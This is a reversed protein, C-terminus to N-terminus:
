PGAHPSLIRKKRMKREMIIIECVSEESERYVTVTVIAGKSSM